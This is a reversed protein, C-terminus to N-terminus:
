TWFDAATGIYTLTKSQLNNKGLITNSLPCFTKLAQYLVLWYPYTIVDM